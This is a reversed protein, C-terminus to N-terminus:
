RCLEQKHISVSRNAGEQSPRNGSRLHPLFDRRNAVAAERTAHKRTVVSEKKQSNSVQIDVHAANELSSLM